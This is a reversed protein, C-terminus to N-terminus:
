AAIIRSLRITRTSPEPCMGMNSLVAAVTAASFSNKRHLGSDQQHRQARICARM